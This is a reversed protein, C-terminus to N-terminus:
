VALNYYLIIKGGGGNGGPILQVAGSGDDFSLGGGGGGGPSDGAQAPINQLIAPALGGPTQTAYVAGSGGEGGAGGKMALYSTGAAYSIHIDNILRGFQGAFALQAYAGFVIDSCSTNTGNATGGSASGGIVEIAQRGIKKNFTFSTDEGNIPATTGGAGGKAVYLKIQVGTIQMRFQLYCGGQGGGSTGGGGGGGWLEVAVDTVGAPPTWPTNYGPTDFVVVQNYLKLLTQDMAHDIIFSSGAV